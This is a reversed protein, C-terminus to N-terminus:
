RHGLSDVAMTSTCQIHWRSGDRADSDFTQRCKVDWAAPKLSKHFYPLYRAPITRVGQNISVMTMLITSGVFFRCHGNAERRLAGAVIAVMGNPITYLTMAIAVVTATTTVMYDM